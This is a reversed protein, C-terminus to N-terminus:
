SDWRGPRRYIPFPRGAWLQDFSDLGPDSFGDLVQVVHTPPNQNNRHSHRSPLFSKRDWYHYVRYIYSSGSQEWDVPPSLSYQCKMAQGSLSRSGSVQLLFRSAPLLLDSTLHLIRSAICSSMFKQAYYRTTLIENSYLKDNQALHLIENNDSLTFETVFFRM